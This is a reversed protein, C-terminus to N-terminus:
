LGGVFNRILNDHYNVQKDGAFKSWLFTYFCTVCLTRRLIAVLFNIDPSLMYYRM